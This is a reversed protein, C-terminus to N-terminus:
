RGEYREAMKKLEGTKAKAARWKALEVSFAEYYICGESCHDHETRGCPAPGLPPCPTKPRKM